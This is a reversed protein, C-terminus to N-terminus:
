VAPSGGFVQILSACEIIWAREGVERGFAADPVSKIWAKSATFLENGNNDKIILAGVAGGTLRDELAKASLLANVLSTQLLTITVEARHDNNQSRVVEGDSGVESTFRETTQAISVFEDTGLGGEIAIGNWAVTVAAANYNKLAM